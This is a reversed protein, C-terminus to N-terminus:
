QRIRYRVLERKLVHLDGEYIATELVNGIGKVYYRNTNRTTSVNDNQRLIIGQYNLAEFNGVRTNIPLSEEVMKFDTSYLLNGLSDIVEDKQIISTFDNLAFYKLGAEDVLYDSSDRLYQTFPLGYRTGELKYYTNGNIVTDRSIYVSDTGHLNCNTGSVNCDFTEYVWYNGVNLAVYDNFDSDAESTAMKECSASWLGTIVLVVIINRM